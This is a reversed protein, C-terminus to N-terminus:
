GSQLGTAKRTRRASPPDDSLEKSVLDRTVGSIRAIEAMSMGKNRLRRWIRRREGLWDTQRIEILRDIDAQKSPM